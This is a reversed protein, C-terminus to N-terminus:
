QWTMSRGRPSVCLESNEWARWCNRLADEIQLLQGLKAPPAQLQEALATATIGALAAMAQGQLQETALSCAAIVEPCALAQFAIAEIRGSRPRVEFCIIQGQEVSGASGRLIEGDAPSLPGVNRPRDFHELVLPSYEM